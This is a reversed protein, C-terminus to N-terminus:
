SRGGRDPDGADRRLFAPTGGRLRLDAQPKACGFASGRWGGHRTASWRRFVALTRPDLQEPSEQARTNLWRTIAAIQAARHPSASRQGVLPGLAGHLSARAQSLLHRYTAEPLGFVDCVRWHPWQEVDRGHIAERQDMPLAAFAEALTSGAQEWRGGWPLDSWDEPGSIERTSPSLTSAGTEHARGFGVTIGAVWTAFPTHWRFMDLGGLAVEWSHLVVADARSRSDVYLEALRRLTPQLPEALATFAAAEGRRIGEYLDLEAAASLWTGPHDRM